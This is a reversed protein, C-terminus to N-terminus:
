PAEGALADAIREALMTNGRESLHGFSGGFRDVYITSWPDPEQAFLEQNDLVLLGPQEALLERLPGAPLTPYQMALLTIDRQALLEALRPYLERTLEFPPTGQAGPEPAEGLRSAALRTLKWARLREWPLLGRDPTALRYPLARGSDNFGLMAVVVRPEYRELWGEIRRLVFWSNTSPRGADFVAFDRGPLRAELAAELFLPYQGATMSDGVCLVGTAGLQAAAARNHRQQALLFRAGLLRLGGELLCAFLLVGVLVALTSRLPQRTGPM